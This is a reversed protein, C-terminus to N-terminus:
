ALDECTKPYQLSQKITNKLKEGDVEYIFEVLRLSQARPKLAEQYGIINGYYPSSYATDVDLYVVLVEYTESDDQEFHYSFSSVHLPTLWTPPTWFRSSPQKTGFRSSHPATMLMKM